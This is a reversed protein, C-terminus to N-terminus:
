FILSVGVTMSNNDLEPFGKKEYRHIYNAMLKLNNKRTLYVNVGGTLLAIKAEDSTRNLLDIRYEEYRCVLEVRRPWVFLGGQLYWGDANWRSTRVDGVVDVSLDYDYETAIYEGLLSLGMWRFEAEVGWATVTRDIDDNQLFSGGVSVRPKRMRFDADWLAGLLTTQSLDGEGAAMPGLLDVVARVVYMPENNNDAAYVKYGQGNFVGARLRIEATEEGLAVGADLTAGLDRRIDIEEVVVARNIFQMQPESALNQRSFPIKMAGLHAGFEPVFGPSKWAQPRFRAQLYANELGFALTGDQQQEASATLKMGLWDYFVRGQLGFAAKRLAFGREKDPSGPYQLVEDEPMDNFFTYTGILEVCPRLATSLRPALRQKAKKYSEEGLVGVDRLVDLLDEDQYAPDQESWRGGGGSGAAPLSWGILLVGIVLCVMPITRRM